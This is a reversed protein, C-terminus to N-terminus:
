SNQAWQVSKEIPGRLIMNLPPHDPGWLVDNQTGSCVWDEPAESEYHQEFHEM